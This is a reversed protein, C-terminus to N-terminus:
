PTEDSVSLDTLLNAIYQKYLYIQLNNRKSRCNEFLITAKMELEESIMQGLYLDREVALLDLLRDHHLGRKNKYSFFMWLTMETNLSVM